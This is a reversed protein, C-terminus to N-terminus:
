VSDNIGPLILRMEQWDEAQWRVEAYRGGGPAAGDGRGPSPEGELREREPKPQALATVCWGGRAEQLKRPAIVYDRGDKRVQLLSKLRIAQEVIEMRTSAHYTRYEKLWVGPIDRLGPYLHPVEPVRCEMEYLALAHRAYLLGRAPGGAAGPPSAGQADPEAAATLRPYPRTGQADPGAPSGEPLLGARELAACLPAAESRDVVFDREGLRERLYPAAAKLAAVRRATAADACRLLLPQAFALGGLGRTWERLASAVHDPVGYAAHRVLCAAIDAATRGAAAARRVSSKTLRYVAVQDPAALEAFCALEWRASMPVDPPVLVEYDPQVIWEGSDEAAEAGACLDFRWAYRGRGDTDAWGLALLPRLWQAELLRAREGAEERSNARGVLGATELATLLGAASVFGAAACREFALAAQQLAANAPLALQRWCAYLRRRQADASLHLWRSLVAENLTWETEGAEALGLRLLLDLLVAAALPYTEAYAYKLAAGRLRTEDLLTRQTLRQITKKHLTGSKTLALGDAAALALTEFLDIVVDTTRGFAERELPEGAEAQPSAEASPGDALVLEPALFRHWSAMAEVPLWYLPEGWSKRYALVIGLRLLGTFGVRTEAGSLQEGAARELKADDFPESGCYRMVARLVARESASMRNWVTGAVVPDTLLRELTEGRAIWPAYAEEAALRRKLAEPMFAFWEPTTM